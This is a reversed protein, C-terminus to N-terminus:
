LKFLNRLVFSSVNARIGCKLSNWDDLPGNIVVFFFKVDQAVWSLPGVASKARKCNEVENRRDCHLFPVYFSMFARQKKGGDLDGGEPLCWSGNRKKTLTKGKKMEKEPNEFERDNWIEREREREPDASRM